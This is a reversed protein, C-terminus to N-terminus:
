APPEEDHATRPAADAELADLRGAVARFVVLLRRVLRLESDTTMMTDQAHSFLAVNDVQEGRAEGQIVDTHVRHAERLPLQAAALQATAEDFDFRAAAELATTLLTRAEGSGLLIKM